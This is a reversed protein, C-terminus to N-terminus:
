NKQRIDIELYDASTGILNELGKDDFRIGNKSYVVVLNSDSTNAYDSSDGTPQSKSEIFVSSSM